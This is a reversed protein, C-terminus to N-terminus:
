AAPELEVIDGLSIKRKAIGEFGSGASYVEEGTLKGETPHVPWVVGM